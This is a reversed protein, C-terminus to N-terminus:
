DEWELVIDNEKLGDLIEVSDNTIIGVSVKTKCEKPLSSSNSVKYSYYDYRCEKKVVYYSDDKDMLLAGYPIYLVNEKEELIVNVSAGYGFRIDDSYPISVRVKFKSGESPLKSIYSVIGEVEKNLATIKVTTKQGVVLKAVDKESVLMEVGINTLDYVYYNTSEGGVEFYMGDIPTTIYKYYGESLVKLVRQKASVRDGDNFFKEKVSGDIPIELKQINFSTVTGTGKVISKITGVEVKDEIFYYAVDLDTADSFNKSVKKAWIGLVVGVIVLLVVIILFIKLGKKM